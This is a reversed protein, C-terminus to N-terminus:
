LKGPKYLAVVFFLLFSIIVYLWIILNGKKREPESEQEYKAIVIKYKKKHLFLFYGGLVLVIMFAIVQNKRTFFIPLLDIKRLFGIATFLNVFILGSFYIMAAWEAIDKLSGVLTAKYLKYYLYDLYKMM